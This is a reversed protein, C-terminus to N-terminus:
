NENSLLSRIVTNVLVLDDAIPLSKGNLTLRGAELSFRTGYGGDSATLVGFMAGLALLEASLAQGSFQLQGHAKLQRAADFSEPSTGPAMPNLTVRANGQASGKPFNAQVQPIGVSFGSAILNRVSQSVIRQQTATLNDINGAVNMVSSLATVSGMDLDTLEVDLRMGSIQENGMQLRDLTSQVYVNLRDQEIQNNGQLEIGHAQVDAFEIKQIGFTTQGVGAFRDALRMSLSIGEISLRDPGSQTVLEPMREQFDMHKDLVRLNGVLAAMQLREGQYDGTVAPIEFTSQAQGDWRLDGQGTLVPNSGFRERMRQASDDMLEAQWDFRFVTNPMVTHDIVYTVQMRFLDPRPQVTADPDPYHLIMQGSSKLLGQTHTLDTLRLPTQSPPQDMLQMIDTKARLGAYYSAGVWAIVLILVLFVILAPLKKM